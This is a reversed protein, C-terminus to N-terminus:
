RILTGTDLLRLKYCTRLKRVLVLTRGYEVKTIFHLAFLSETLFQFILKELVLRRQKTNFTIININILKYM